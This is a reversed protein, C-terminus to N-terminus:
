CKLHMYYQTNATETFKLVRTNYMREKHEISCAPSKGTTLPIKNEQVHSPM